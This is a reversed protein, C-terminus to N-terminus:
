SIVSGHKKFIRLFISYLCAIRSCDSQNILYWTPLGIECVFIVCTVQGHKQGAEVIWDTTLLLKRAIQLREEEDLVAADGSGALCGRTVFLFFFFVASLSLSFFLSTQGQDGDAALSPPQQRLM